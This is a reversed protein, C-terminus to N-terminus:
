ACKRQKQLSEFLAAKRQQMQQAAALDTQRLAGAQLAKLSHWRKFMVKKQAALQALKELLSAVKHNIYESGHDSHFGRLKFPYQDLIQQLVPLLYAESNIRFAYDIL